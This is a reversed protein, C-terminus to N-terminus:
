NLRKSILVRPNNQFSESRSFLLRYGKRRELARSNGGNLDIGHMLKKQKCITEEGMLKTKM